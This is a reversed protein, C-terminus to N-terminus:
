SRREPISMFNAIRYRLVEVQLHLLYMLQPIIKDLEASDNTAVAKNCLERIRDEMRRNMVFTFSLNEHQLIGL